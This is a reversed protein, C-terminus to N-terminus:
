FIKLLKTVVNQDIAVGVFGRIAPTEYEREIQGNNLVYAKRFFLNAGGQVSFGPVIDIGAGLFYNKFFRQSVSLGALLYYKSVFGNGRAKSFTAYNGAWVKRLLQNRKGSRTMNSEKIYWKVGVVAEFNSTGTNTQFQGTANDFISVARQGFVYNISLLPWWKVTNYTKYGAKAVPKDKGTEYIAYNIQNTGKATLSENLLINQSRYRPPLKGESETKDFEAYAKQLDEIPPETQAALWAVLQRTENFLKIREDCCQIIQQKKKAKERAAKQAPTERKNEGESGGAPSRSGGEQVSKTLFFIEAGELLVRVRNLLTVLNASNKMAEALADTADDTSEDLNTRLPAAKVTEQASAKQDTTLNHVLGRMYDKEYVYDPLLDPPNMNAYDSSADFHNLWQVRNCDSVWLEVTNFLTKTEAISKLWKQYDQQRKPAQEKTKQLLVVQRSLQGMPQRLLDLLTAMDTSTCCQESLSRHLRLM